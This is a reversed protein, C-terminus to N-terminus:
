CLLKSFRKNALNGYGGPFGGLGLGGLGLGGLGFQPNASEATELDKAPKDDAYCLTM